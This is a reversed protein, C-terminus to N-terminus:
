SLPPRAERGQRPRRIEYAKPEGRVDPLRHGPWGGGLRELTAPCAIVPSVAAQKSRKEMLAALRVTPGVVTFDRRGDPRGVTGMLVEGTGVGVGIVLPLTPDHRQRATEVMALGARVARRAPDERGHAPLFVAMLADGIFKDIVGGEQEILTEMATFHANLGAALREPAVRESLGTFGRIDSFLISARSRVATAAEGQRVAERTLDSLFRGLFEREQLGEAMRNFSQCLRGIEDGTVPALRVDFRGAAIAGVGASLEAVPGLYFRRFLLAVTVLVLLPYLIGAGWAGGAAAPGPVGDLPLVALGVHDTNDLLRALCAYEKGGYSYVLIQSGGESLLRRLIPRLLPLRAVREPYFSTHGVQSTAFSVPPLFERGPDFDLVQSLVPQRQILVRDPILHAFGEVQRRTDLFLHFVNWTPQNFYSLSFLQDSVTFWANIVQQGFMDGLNSLLLEGQMRGADGRKGMPPLGVMGRFTQAIARFLDGREKGGRDRRSIVTGFPRDRGEVSILQITASGTGAMWGAVTQRGTVLDRWLRDLQAPAITQWVDSQFRCQQEESAQLRSELLRLVTPPIEQRHWPEPTLLILLFALGPMLSAGGFLEAVKWGLPQSWGEAGSWALGVGQWLLGLAGLLGCWVAARVWTRWPGAVQRVVVVVDEPTRPDFWYGAVGEPWRVMGQALGGARVEVAAGVGPPLPAQRLEGAPGCWCASLSRHRFRNLFGRRFGDDLCRRPLFAAVIGTCLPDGRPKPMVTDLKAATLDPCAPRMVLHVLLFGPEGNEDIEFVETWDARPGLLRHLPNRDMWAPALIGRVVRNRIPAPLRSSLNERVAWKLVFHTLVERTASSFGWQNWERGDPGAVLFAGLGGGRDLFRTEMEKAQWGALPGEMGDIVELFVGEALGPGTVLDRLVPLFRRVEAEALELAAEHSAAGYAWLLGALLVGFGGVLLFRGGQWARAGPQVVGREGSRM